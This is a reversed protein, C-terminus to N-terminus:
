SSRKQAQALYTDINKRGEASLGLFHMEILQVIGVHSAAPQQQSQSTNEGEKASSAQPLSSSSAGWSQYLKVMVVLETLFRHLVPFEFHVEFKEGPQIPAPAIEALFGLNTLKMIQIPFTAGSAAKIQGPIPFPKVKKVIVGDRSM